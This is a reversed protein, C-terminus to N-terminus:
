RNKVDSILGRVTEQIEDFDLDSVEPRIVFLIDYNDLSIEESEFAGRVRRRARNRSVANKFGRTTIFGIRGRGELIYLSMGNMSIRKGNKLINKIDKSKSLRKERPLM